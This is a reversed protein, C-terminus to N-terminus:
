QPSGSKARARSGTGYDLAWRAALVALVGNEFEPSAYVWTPQLKSFRALRAVKVNADGLALEAAECKAAEGAAAPDARYFLWEHVFADQLEALEHCRAEDEIWGGHLDDDRIAISRTPRTTYFDELVFYRSELAGAASPGTYWGYVDTDSTLYAVACRLGGRPAYAIFIRPNRAVATM